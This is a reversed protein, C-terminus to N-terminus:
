DPSWAVKSGPTTPESAGVDPSSIVSFLINKFILFHFILLNRFYRFVLNRNWVFGRPAATPWYLALATARSEEAELRPKGACDGVCVSPFGTRVSLSRAACVKGVSM